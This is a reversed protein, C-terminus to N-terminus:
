ILAQVANRIVQDPIQDNFPPLIKNILEAEIKDICTNDTLPLYRIFLYKRWGDIM